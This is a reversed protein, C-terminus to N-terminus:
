LISLCWSGDVVYFHVTAQKHLRLSAGGRVWWDPQILLMKWIGGVTAVWGDLVVFIDDIGVDRSAAPNRIIFSSFSVFNSIWVKFQSYLAVSGHTWTANECRLHTVLNSIWVKFQRVPSPTVNHSQQKFNLTQLERAFRVFCMMWDHNQNRYM